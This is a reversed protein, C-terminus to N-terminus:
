EDYSDTVRCATLVCTDGQVEQRIVRLPGEVPKRVTPTTIDIRVSMGQERLLAEAEEAKWGLLNMAKTTKIDV